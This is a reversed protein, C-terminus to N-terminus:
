AAGALSPTTPALGFREPLRSAGVRHALLAIQAAHHITHSIVFALERAVSSRCEVIPGGNALVVRVVLPQTLAADTHRALRMAASMLSLVGLERDSEIATRRRRADYDVVGTELGREFTLVHDLCHRVHGGISGSIGQVESGTYEAPTLQAIARAAETLLSALASFSEGAVTM